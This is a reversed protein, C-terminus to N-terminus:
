RRCRHCYSDPTTPATHRVPQCRNCLCMSPAHTIRVNGFLDPLTRCLPASPLPFFSMLSTSNASKIASAGIAAYKLSLLWLILVRIEHSLLGTPLAVWTCIYDPLTSGKGMRNHTSCTLTRHRVKRGETYGQLVKHVFPHHVHTAPVPLPQVHVCSCTPMGVHMAPVYHACLTSMMHKDHMPPHTGGV